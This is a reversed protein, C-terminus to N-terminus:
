PKMWKDIAQRIDRGVGKGWSVRTPLYRESCQAGTLHKDMWDLRAKDAELEAIREKDAQWANAYDGLASRDDPNFAKSYRILTKPTLKNATM